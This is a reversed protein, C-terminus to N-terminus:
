GMLIDARPRGIRAATRTILAFGLVLPGLRGLYMALMLVAQGSIDTAATAGASLGVTAYASVIEFAAGALSIGPTTILLAFILLVIAFLSILAVSLAQSAAEPPLSRRGITVETNRRLYAATAATLVMATSLKIGGGTSAPGAGIFMLVMVVLLTPATLAAVDVTSFGATRTSISLFLAEVMRATPPLDGLTQPSRWELAALVLGGGLILAASGWVMVRTHLSWRSQSVVAVLVPFGLGGTVILAAVVGLAATDGSWAALGTSPLAFGANNFASVAHFLATWWLSLGHADTPLAIALLATGALEMGLTILGISRVLPVAEAISTTGLHQNVVLRQGLGLRGGLTIMTLAAFVSLGLGGLQILVLLVAQGAPTLRQGVDIISLGTVTMASTATFLAEPVSLAPEAMGPLMLLLGGVLIMAALALAFLRPPSIRVSGAPRDTPRGGRPRMRRVTGGSM